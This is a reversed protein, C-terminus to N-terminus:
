AGHFRPHPGRGPQQHGAKYPMGSVAALARVRLNSRSRDWLTLVPPTGASAIDLSGSLLADNMAVGGSFQLWTVDPEPLGLRASEQELLRQRKMVTFPLYAVGFQEAIRVEPPSAARVVHPM